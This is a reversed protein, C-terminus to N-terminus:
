KGGGQEKSLAERAILRNCVCLSHNCLEDHMRFPEDKAIKELAEALRENHAALSRNEEILRIFCFHCNPHIIGKPHGTLHRSKEAEFLDQRCAAAVSPISDEPKPTPTTM